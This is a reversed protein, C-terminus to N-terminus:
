YIGPCDTRGFDTAFQDVNSGGANIEEVLDTGDVDGDPESDGECLYVTAIWSTKVGYSVPEDASFTVWGINEGWARGSFEGTLPDIMIGYDVSTCSNTNECSFSIWGANEAWAFGSLNGLGDNIIGFDVSSCSSANECSLNVWGINEAWIYGTLKSDEVEVGSGGDGSPEANLWGINEGYTYQSGDDNPDINEAFVINCDFLVMLIIISLLLMTHLKTKRM